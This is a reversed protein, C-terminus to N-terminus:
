WDGSLEGVRQKSLEEKRRMERRWALCGPEIEKKDQKPLKHKEIILKWGLADAMVRDGHNKNAGSPDDKSKSRAHCVGHQNDYVYELCEDLAERSPNIANGGELGARYTGLLSVKL